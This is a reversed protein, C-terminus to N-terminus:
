ELSSLHEKLEVSVKDLNSLGSRYSLKFVPISEVLNSLNKLRGIEIGMSVYADALISNQLLIILANSAGLQEIKCGENATEELRELYYIAKLQAPQHRWIDEGRAFEIEYKAFKQHVHEKKQAEILNKEKNLASIVLPADTESEFDNNNGKDKELEMGILSDAMDPWLRIKPWSPYITFKGKETSHIAAMDDTMIKFQHNTLVTTLTSKGTRSPAIILAANDDLTIANAHICPVGQLELWSALGLSQIYHEFSTGASRWDILMENKDFTFSGQGECKVSLKHKNGNKRLEILSSYRTGEDLMTWIPSSTSECPTDLNLTVNLHFPLNENQRPQEGEFRLAVGHLPELFLSASTKREM